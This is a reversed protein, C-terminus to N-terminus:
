IVFAIELRIFKQIENKFQDMNMEWLYKNNGDPLIEKTNTIIGGNALYEYANKQAPNNIEDTVQPICWAPRQIGIQLSFRASYFKLSAETYFRFDRTLSDITGGGGSEIYILNVGTEYFMSISLGKIVTDDLTFKMSFRSAFVDQIPMKLVTIFKIKENLAYIGFGAMIFPTFDTNDELRTYQKVRLIEYNSSFYDIFFHPSELIFGAIIGLLFGSNKLNIVKIESGINFSGGIGFNQKNDLLLVNENFVNLKFHDYPWTFIEYISWFLPFSTVYNYPSRTFNRHNTLKENDSLKEVNGYTFVSLDKKLGSVRNSETANIDAAVSTGTKLSFVDRFPTFHFIDINADLAFIDPDLLDNIIFVAEIPLAPLKFKDLNNANFKLFLGQEKDIPEFAYNHFDKLLLGTGFTTVPNRGITGFVPSDKTGYVIYEIKDLYLLFINLGRNYTGEPLTWNDSIFEFQSNFFRFRLDIDLGIGFDNIHFAPKLYISLYDTIGYGDSFAKMSTGCDFISQLTLKKEDKDIILFKIPNVNINLVATIFFILIIKKNKLYNM